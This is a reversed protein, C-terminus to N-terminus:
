PRLTGVMDQDARACALRHPFEGPRSALNRVLPRWLTKVFFFLAFHTMM